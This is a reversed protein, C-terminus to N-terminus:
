MKLSASNTKSVHEHLNQLEERHKKPVQKWNIEEKMDADIALLLSVKQVPDIDSMIAYYYASRGEDDRKSTQAGLKIMEEVFAPERNLCAYMLASHNGAGMSDISVGKSVLHNLDDISGNDRYSCLSIMDRHSLTHDEIRMIEGL